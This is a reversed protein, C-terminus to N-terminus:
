GQKRRKLEGTRAKKRMSDEVMKKLAAQVLTTRAKTKNGYSRTTSSSSHDLKSQGARIRPTKGPLTARKDKSSKKSASQVSILTSPGSTLTTTTDESEESVNEDSDEQKNMNSKVYHSPEQTREMKSVPAPKSKVASQPSQQAGASPKVPASYLGGM